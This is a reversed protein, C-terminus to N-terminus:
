ALRLLLLMVVLLILIYILYAQVTAKELRSFLSSGRLIWGAVPDYLYKEFIPEIDGAYRVFRTFYPSVNYEVQVVRRPRYIMSFIIKIPKPLINDVVWQSPLLIIVM